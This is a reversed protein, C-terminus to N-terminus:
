VLKGWNPNISPDRPGCALTSGISGGKSTSKFHQTNQIIYDHLLFILFFLIQIVLM